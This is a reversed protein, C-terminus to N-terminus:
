RPVEEPPPDAAPLKRYRGALGVTVGQVEGDPTSVLHRWRFSFRGEIRTYAGPSLIPDAIPLQSPIPIPGSGLTVISLVFGAVLRRIM